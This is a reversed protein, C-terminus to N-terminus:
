INLMEAIGVQSKRRPQPNSSLFGGDERAPKCAFGVLISALSKFLGKFIKIKVQGRRPVYLSQNPNSKSVTNRNEM